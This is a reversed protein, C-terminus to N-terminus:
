LDSEYFCIGQTDLWVRMQPRDRSAIGSLVGARMGVGMFEDMSIPEMLLIRSYLQKDAMIKSCLAEDFDNSKSNYLNVKSYRRKINNEAEKNSATTQRITTPLKAPELTLQALNDEIEPLNGISSLPLDWQPQTAYREKVIEFSASSASEDADKIEIVESPPKAVPRKPLMKSNVVYYESLTDVLAQKPRTTVFGLRRCESKLEPVKWTSFYASAKTADCQAAGTHLLALLHSEQLQSMSCFSLLPPLSRHAVRLM